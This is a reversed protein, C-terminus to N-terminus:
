FTEEEDPEFMHELDSQGRTLVTGLPWGHRIDLDLAKLLFLLGHRRNALHRNVKPEFANYNASGPEQEFLALVDECYKALQPVQKSLEVTLSVILADRYRAPLTVLRAIYCHLLEHFLVPEGIEEGLLYLVTGDLVPERQPPETEITLVGELDLAELDKLATGSLDSNEDGIRPCWVGLHHACTGEGFRFNDFDRIFGDLNKYLVDIKMIEEEYIIMMSRLLFAADHHNRCSGRCVFLPVGIPPKRSARDRCYRIWGPPPRSRSDTKMKSGGKVNKQSHALISTLRTRICADIHTRFRMVLRM